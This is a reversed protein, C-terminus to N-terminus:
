HHSLYRSLLRHEWDKLTSLHTEIAILGIFILTGGILQFDFLTEHLILKAYLVGFLPMTLSVVGVTSATTHEFASYWLISGGIVCFFVIGLLPLIVENSWEIAAIEGTTFFVFVIGAIGFRALSIIEPPLRCLYKKMIINGTSWCCATALILIDGGAFNISISLGETAIYYVGSFMFISGIVHNITIKEKLFVVGMLAILLSNLRALLIANTAFTYKIGTTYLFQALVGSMLGLALLSVVEMKTLRGIQRLKHEANIIFFLIISGLVSYTAVVALPSMNRLLLKTFVPELGLFACALLALTAGKM